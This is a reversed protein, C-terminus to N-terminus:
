SPSLRGPRGCYRCHILVVARLVQSALSWRLVAFRWGAVPPAKQTWVRSPSFQKAPLEFILGGFHLKGDRRSRRLISNAQQAASAPWGTVPLALEGGLSSSGGILEDGYWATLAIPERLLPMVSSPTPRVTSIRVIPVLVPYISDTRQGKCAPASGNPNQAVPAQLDPDVATQLNADCTPRGAPVSSTPPTVLCRAFLVRPARLLRQAV